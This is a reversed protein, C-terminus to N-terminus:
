SVRLFGAMIISSHRNGANGIGQGTRFSHSRGSSDQQEKSCNVRELAAKVNNQAQSHAPDLRAATSVRLSARQFHDFV